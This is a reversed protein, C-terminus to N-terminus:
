TKYKHRPKTMPPYKDHRRKRVRPEVRDPRNGVIHAAISQLLHTVWAVTSIDSVIIPLFQNVTQMTGKFSIQYPQVDESRATEAMVERILNYAILHMRLENRVRHPKKCRLHDMQMVSKLSRLHLEAQWRQRFLDALAQLPIVDADLLTTIVLVERSRFGPITVRVRVERLTLEEPLAQHTAVDMWDPRKPKVWVVLHDDKGLRKGTRFDTRRLQHKRVVVDIGRRQLLAIDFWGSFYRDALVVDRPELVQSITRFLSNEGTQKGEYKGMALELAVGTAMCFVVVFRLIPFGCGPKQGPVQPYEARNEETDAMTSTSGDVVRVRRNQWLWSPPAAASVSKSTAGVLGHCLDEPLQDRATCYAGTEPSCPKQQHAVRHAILRAVTERCSHDASLVQALFSWIVVAPSYIWGQWNARAEGLLDDILKVPLLSAFYLERCRRAESVRARLSLSV